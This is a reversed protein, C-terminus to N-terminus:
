LGATPLAAIAAQCAVASATPSKKGSPLASGAFDSAEGFIQSSM